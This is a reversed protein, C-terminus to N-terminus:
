QELKEIRAALEQVAKILPAIFETYGITLIDDGGSITHDQYGGFDTGLREMVQKVEQAIVGHHFRNRKKSGDKKHSVLRTKAPEKDDIVTEVYDDRLDLRYDVPRLALIFALGLKTDRIDTKDRKDSRDQVAGFAYTTTTSNGLQVQNSGSVRADQGLGTCNSFSDNVAGTATYVLSYYGLATNASGTKNKGLAYFGLAANASGTNTEYLASYGIATNNNALTYYGAYNGFCTNNNGSLNTSLTSYGIATNNLGSTFRGSAYGIFTNYTNATYDLAEGALQGLVINYGSNKVEVRGEIAPLSVHGSNANILLSDTWSNGDASVKFHFNDDGALGIEARGSYGTQYLISATDSVAAKNVKFQVGAGSNDFLVADSKVALRNTTDATTNIGIFDLNQNDGSVSGWAAGDWVKFANEDEVWAQWGTQPHYYHWAGDQYAAIKGSHAAWDGSAGAAIFYRDGASPNVPPTNQSLSKLSIHVLADLARIAENHTVHKQAQAPAIYPLKLIESTFDTFNTM